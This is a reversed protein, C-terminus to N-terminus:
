RCNRFLQPHGLVALNSNQLWVTNGVASTEDTPGAGADCYFNNGIFDPVRYADDTLPDITANRFSSTSHCDCNGLFCHRGPLTGATSYACTRALEVLDPDGQRLQTATAEPVIYATGAALTWM